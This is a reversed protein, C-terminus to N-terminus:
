QGGLIETDIIPEIIEEVINEAEHEGVVETLKEELQAEEIVEEGVVQTEPLATDIIDVEEEIHGDKEEEEEEDCGSGCPNMCGMMMPCCCDGDAADVQALLTTPEKALESLDIAKSAAMLCAISLQVRM